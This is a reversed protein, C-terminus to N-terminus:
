DFWGNMAEAQMDDCFATLGDLPEGYEDHNDGITPDLGWYSSYSQRPTDEIKGLIEKEGSTLSFFSVNKDAWLLYSKDEANLHESVLDGKFKGFTFKHRIDIGVKLLCEQRLEFFENDSIEANNNQYPDNTESYKYATNLSGNLVSNMVYKKAEEISEAYHKAYHDNPFISHEEENVGESAIYIAWFDKKKKMTTRNLTKITLNGNHDLILINRKRPFDTSYLKGRYTFSLIYSTHKKGNVGYRYSHSYDDDYYCYATELFQVLERNNGNYEWCRVGKGKRMAM